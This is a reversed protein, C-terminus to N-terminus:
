SARQRGRSFRTFGCVGPAPMLYGPPSVFMFPIKWKFVARDARRAGGHGQACARHDCQSWFGWKDVRFFVAPCNLVALYFFRLFKSYTPFATLTEPVRVVPEIGTPRVMRHIFKIGTHGTFHRQKRKAKAQPDFFIRSMVIDMDM